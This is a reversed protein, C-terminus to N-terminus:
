CGAPLTYLTSCCAKIMNKLMEGNWINWELEMGHEMGYEMGNRMGAKVTERLLRRIKETYGIRHRSLESMIELLRYMNKTMFTDIEERMGPWVPLCLYEFVLTFSGGFIM